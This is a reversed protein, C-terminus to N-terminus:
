GATTAWFAAVMPTSDSPRNVRPRPLPSFRLSCVIPSPQGGDLRTLLHELLRDLHDARQEAAVEDGVAALVVGDVGRPHPIQGIFRTPIPMATEPSWLMSRNAGNASWRMATSGFASRTVPHFPTSPAVEMPWPARAM